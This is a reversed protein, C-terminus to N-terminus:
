FEGTGFRKIIHFEGGSELTQYYHKACRKCLRILISGFIVFGSSEKICRDKDWAECDGFETNQSEHEVLKVEPFEM